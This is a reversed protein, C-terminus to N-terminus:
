ALLPDGPPYGLQAERLDPRIQFIPQDPPLPQQGIDRGLKARIPPRYPPQHLLGLDLAM